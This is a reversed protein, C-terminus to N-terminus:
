GVVVLAARKSAVRKAARKEIEADWKGVANENMTEQQAQQVYFLAMKPTKHGLVAMIEPVTCGALALEMGANKRLGHMVYDTFGLAHLRNRIAHSLTQANAFPASTVM